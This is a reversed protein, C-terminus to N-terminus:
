GYLWAAMRTPMRLALLSMGLARRLRRARDKPPPEVTLRVAVHRRRRRGVRHALDAIELAPLPRIGGLARYLDRHIVLGHDLAAAGTAFARLAAGLTALWALGAPGRVPRFHFARRGAITEAESLAERLTRCWGEEPVAGPLLFLLWPGRAAAAGLKMREARSPPGDILRCGTIDAIRATGDRSGGDIVVVERVLGDVAAPVLAALTAFLAREDDRTPIVVSIM